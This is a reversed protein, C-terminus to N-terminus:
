QCLEPIAACLERRQGEETGGTGRPNVTRAKGIDGRKGAVDVFFRAFDVDRGFRKSFRKKTGPADLPGFYKSLESALQPDQESMNFLAELSLDRGYRGKEDMVQGRIINPANPQDATVNYFRVRDQPAQPPTMGFNIERRSPMGGLIDLLQGTDRDALSQMTDMRNARPTKEGFAGPIARGGDLYRKKVLM